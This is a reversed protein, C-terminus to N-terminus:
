NPAPGTPDLDKFIDPQEVKAKSSNQFQDLRRQLDAKEEELRQVEAKLTEVEQELEVKTKPRQRETSNRRPRTQKFQTVANRFEDITSADNYTEILNDASVSLNQAIDRWALPFAGNTLQNKQAETYNEAFKRCKNVTSKSYGVEDAIRGVTNEGYVTPGSGNIRDGLIWRSEIVSFEEGSKLWKAWSILQDETEPHFNLNFEVAGEPTDGNGTTLVQLQYM